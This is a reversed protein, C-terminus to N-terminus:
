FVPKAVLVKGDADLKIIRFTDTGVYISGDNATAFGYFYESGGNVSDVKFETAKNNVLDMVVGKGSGGGLFKKQDPSYGMGYHFSIPTEFEAVKGDATMAASYNEYAFNFVKDGPMLLIPYYNNTFWTKHRATESLSGDFWIVTSTYGDHKQRFTDREIGKLDKPADQKKENEEDRTKRSMVVIRNGDPSCGVPGAQLEFKVEKEFKLGSLSLRKLITLSKGSEYTRQTFFVADAESALCHSTVDRVSLKVSWDNTALFTLSNKPSFVMLTNGDKSFAMYNAKVGVYVRKKVDLTEPDLLYLVRNVGITAVTKSDPSVAIAGLAIKEVDANAHKSSGLVWAIALTGLLLVM